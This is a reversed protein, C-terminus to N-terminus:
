TDTEKPLRDCFGATSSHRPKGLFMQWLGAPWWGLLHFSPWARSLDCSVVRSWSLLLPSFRTDPLGVDAGEWVLCCSQLCRLTSSQRHGLALFCTLQLLGYSRHIWHLKMKKQWLLLLWMWLIPPAPQVLRLRVGGGQSTKSFLCRPTPPRPFLDISCKGLSKSRDSVHWLSSM